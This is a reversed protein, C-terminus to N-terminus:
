VCLCCGAAEVAVKLPRLLSKLLSVARKLPVDRLKFDYLKFFDSTYSRLRLLRLRPLERQISFRALTEALRLRLRPRPRLSRWLM